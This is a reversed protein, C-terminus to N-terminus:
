SEDLNCETTTAHPKLKPKEAQHNEGDLRKPGGDMRLRRSGLFTERDSVNADLPQLSNGFTRYEVIQGHVDAIMQVALPDALGHARQIGGSEKAIHFQAAVAVGQQHHDDFTRRNRLKLNLAVLVDLGLIQLFAQAVDSECGALGEIPRH